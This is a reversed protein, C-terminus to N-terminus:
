WVGVCWVIGSDCGEGALALHAPPPRCMPCLFVIQQAPEPAGDLLKRQRHLAGSGRGEQKPSQKDWRGLLIDGDVPMPLALCCSIRIHM